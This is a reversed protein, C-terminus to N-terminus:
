SLMVVDGFLAKCARCYSYIYRIGSFVCEILVRGLLLVVFILCLVLFLSFKFMLMFQGCVLLCRLVLSMVFMVGFCVCALRSWGRSM